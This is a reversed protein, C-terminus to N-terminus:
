QRQAKLVEVDAKLQLLENIQAKLLTNETKLAEIQEQQEQMGKVLLPVFSGYALSYNDVESEPVHLGSFNYNLDKCVQEVDQALFGTQIRATSADYDQGELRRQRISDSMKQMLHEDFKRADFQYTVPRLKSIFALGPVNEDHINFKFRADSPYSWNVHGEIATVSSNGIRVKNTTNAIANFGIATANHLEESAVDSQTGFCSNQYGTGSNFLAVRGVATNNSGSDNFDLAAEGVATNGYGSANFYLAGSGMATNFSGSTNSILAAWGNATNNIGTTNAFLAKWGTAANAAGTTNSVMSESGLATNYWGLTNAFMAKSGVATNHSAQLMGGANLGNNYLASDGVAVLYSRNVNEHLAFAGIGVNNNGETNKFLAATGSATNYDGTTNANLANFGFVANGTQESVPFSFGTDQRGVRTNGAQFLELRDPLLLFHLNGNLYMRVVNEDANEEAVVRTDGDSDAIFTPTVAAPLEVSGGGDSLTITNGALSITQLENASDGDGDPPAAGAYLAYPVSRLPSEGMSTWSGGGDLSLDIKMNIAGSEWPVGDIPTGILTGEGVNLHFIGLDSTTVDHIEQYFVTGFMGGDKLIIRVKLPTHAYPQNTADRAVAQYKFSQPIQAIGWGAFSLAAVLALLHKKM